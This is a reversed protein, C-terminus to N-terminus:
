TGGVLEYSNGNWVIITGSPIAHNFLPPACYIRPSYAINANISNVDLIVEKESISSVGSVVGELLLTTDTATSLSTTVTYINCVKGQLTEALAIAGISLDINSIKLNGSIIGNSDSLTVKALKDPVYTNAAYVVQQKSSYYIPTNFMLQVLYVPTTVNKSLEAIQAPTITRPM